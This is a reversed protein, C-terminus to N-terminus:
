HFSSNYALPFYSPLQLGFNFRVAQRWNYLAFRKSRGLTCSTCVFISDKADMDALTATMPDLGELTVLSTARKSGYDDFTITHRPMSAPIVGNEYAAPGKCGDHLHSLIMPWGTLYGSSCKDVETWTRSSWSNSMERELAATCRFVFAALNLPDLGEKFETAPVTAVIAERYERLYQSIYEPIKTMVPLFDRATITADSGANVLAAVEPVTRMLQYAPTQIKQSPRLGARYNEYLAKFIKM